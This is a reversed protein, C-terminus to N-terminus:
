HRTLVEKITEHDCKKYESPYLSPKKKSDDYTTITISQLKSYTLKGIKFSYM